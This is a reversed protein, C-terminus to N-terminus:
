THMRLCFYFFISYFMDDTRDRIDGSHFLIDVIPFRRQLSRDKVRWDPSTLGCVAFFLVTTKVWGGAM